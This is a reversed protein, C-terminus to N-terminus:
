EAHHTSTIDEQEWMEYMIDRGSRYRPPTHSRRIQYFLEYKDYFETAQLDFITNGKDFKMTGKEHPSATPNVIAIPKDFRM